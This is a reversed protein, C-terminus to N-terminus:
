GLHETSSSGEQKKEEWCAMLEYAANPNCSRGISSLEVDFIQFLSQQDFTKLEAPLNKSKAFDYPELSPFPGDFIGFSVVPMGGHDPKEAVIVSLCLDYFARYSSPQM